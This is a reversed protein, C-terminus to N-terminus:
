VELLGRISTITLVYLIVAVPLAIVITLVTDM